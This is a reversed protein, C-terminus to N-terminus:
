DKVNQRKVMDEYQLTEPCIDQQCWEFTQNQIGWINSNIDCIQVCSHNRKELFIRLDNMIQPCTEYKFKKNKGESFSRSLNKFHRSM